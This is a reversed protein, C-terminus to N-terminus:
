RERMIPAHRRAFQGVLNAALQALGTILGKEDATTHAIEFETAFRFIVIDRSIGPWFADLFKKRFAHGDARLEAHNKHDFVARFYFNRRKAGVDAIRIPAM